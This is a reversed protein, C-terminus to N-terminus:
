ETRRCRRRLFHRTCLYEIQQSHFVAVPRHYSLFEVPIIHPSLQDRPRLDDLFLQDRLGDLFSQQLGSDPKRSLTLWYCSVMLRNILDCLIPKQFSFSLGSPVPIKRSPECPVHPGVVLQGLTVCSGLVMHRPTPPHSKKKQSPPSPSM